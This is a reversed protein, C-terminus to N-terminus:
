DNGCKGCKRRNGNRPQRHDDKAEKRLWGSVEQYLKYSRKRAAKEQEHIQVERRELESKTFSFPIGKSKRARNGSGSHCSMDVEELRKRGKIDYTKCMKEFRVKRKSIQCEQGLFIAKEMMKGKRGRLPRGDAHVSNKGNAACKIAAAVAFGRSPGRRRM